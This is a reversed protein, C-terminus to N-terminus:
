SVDSSCEGNPPADDCEGGTTGVDHARGVFHDGAVQGHGKGCGIPETIAQVCEHVLDVANSVSTDGAPRNWSQGPSVAMM